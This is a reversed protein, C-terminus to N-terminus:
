DSRTLNPFDEDPMGGSHWVFVAWHLWSTIGDIESRDLGVKFEQDLLDRPEALLLGELREVRHDPAGRDDDGPELKEPPVAELGGRGRQERSDLAPFEAGEVGRV